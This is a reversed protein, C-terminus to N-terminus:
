RFVSRFARAMKAFSRGSMKMRFAPACPKPPSPISDRSRHNSGLETSLEAARAVIEESDYIIAPTLRARGGRRGLIAAHAGRRREHHQIMGHADTSIIGVSASDFIARRLEMTSRLVEERQQRETIDHFSFVAGTIEGEMRLPTSTCEVTIFTGDKRQYWDEASSHPDGNRLVGLFPCTEAPRSEGQPTRSHILEHMNRGRIEELKYGLLREGAPNLYVLRGEHDLQYIGDGTTALITTLRVNIGALERAARSGTPLM